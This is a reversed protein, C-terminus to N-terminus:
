KEFFELSENMFNDGSPAIGANNMVVDASGLNNKVNEAFTFM